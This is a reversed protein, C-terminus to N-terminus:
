VESSLSFVLTCTMDGFSFAKMNPVSLSTHLWLSSMIWSDDFITTRQVEEWVNLFDKDSLSNFFNLCSNQYLNYFVPFKCEMVFEGGEGGLSYKIENLCALWESTWEKSGDSWPGKWTGGFHGWPSRMVVFRKGQVEVARVVSYSLGGLLGGVAPNAQGSFSGNLITFCCGFLRDKNAFKLESEWFRDHDLIDQM